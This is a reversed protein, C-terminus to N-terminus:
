QWATTLRAGDATVLMTHETQAVMGGGIDALQKYAMVLGARQLKKLIAPAKDDFGYVWREAFPLGKFNEDIYKILRNSSEHKLDRARVLRYINSLKRGEVKGAGASSFPEIAVVDGKAIVDSTRDGVNPISKGAHLVYREISHGTLNVIPRFGYSEITREVAAGILRTPVNPRIVEIAAQLAVESAKILDTWSSTGIEVTKATDAVYGDVHAGLDIKVVQGRKLRLQDDHTPSYHAAVDDICICVPFAPKAGMERVRNEVAEAIDLLNAGDKAISVGLKLAESGAKGALALKEWVEPDMESIRKPCHERGSLGQKATM